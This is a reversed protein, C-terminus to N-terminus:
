DGGEEVEDFVVMLDCVGVVFIWGGGLCFEM